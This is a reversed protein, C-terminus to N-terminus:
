SYEPALTKRRCHHWRPRQKFCHAHSRRAQSLGSLAARRPFVLWTQFGSLLDGDPQSLAIFSVKIPGKPKGKISSRLSPSSIILFHSSQSIPQSASACTMPQLLRLMALIVTSAQVLDIDQSCHWHVLTSGHASLGQHYMSSLKFPKQFNLLQMAYSQHEAVQFLKPCSGLRPNLM